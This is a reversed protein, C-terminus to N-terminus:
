ALFGHLFWRPAREGGHLGLRYLWFRRGAADQVRYYDRAEEPDDGPACWWEPAIREPGEALSVRHVAGRWRFMVPPDDPVPAMADIPEPRPLLRVPRGRDAPWPRAAPAPASGDAPVLAVAREPIWSERPLPRVIRRLGLRAGLRDVLEAVPPASPSFTRRDGEGERKAPGERERSPLPSARGPGNEGRGRLSLSPGTAGAVPPHPTVAAAALGGGMEAQEAVFPDAAPAALTMVEFGPGPELRDLKQRLLRLLHAPDRSPRSTGIELVQPPADHGGDVRWASLVLRRAGEGSAALGACLGELLRAAARDMDEPTSVPEAFALRSLHPPVPRRPNVPEEAEGLAQDLRLAVLAGYRAALAARPRGYLDDVRRLGVRRLAAVTAPPLRLAPLPLAALADLAGGEPVVPSLGHRAVAWATGVTAAVAGRAELGARELRGELDALLGYEGGFLHACGTVDLLLGAGGLDGGAPDPAAWPTYRQCWDCLRELARRDDEPDADAVALAPELARADALAMGPGIGAGQALRDAAAVALRGREPLVAVLPRGHARERMRRRLRDTAFCPLWLSLIRRM